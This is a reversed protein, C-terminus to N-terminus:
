GQKFALFGIIAVVVVVGVIIWTKGNGQNQPPPPPTQMVIIPQQATGQLGLNERPTRISGILDALGGTVGTIGTLWTNLNSSTSTSTQNLQQQQAIYPAIGAQQEPTLGESLRDLPNTTETFGMSMLAINRNDFAPTPKQLFPINRESWTAYTMYARDNNMKGM